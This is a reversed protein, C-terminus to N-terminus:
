SVWFWRQLLTLGRVGMVERAVVGPDLSLFVQAIFSNLKGQRTARVTRSKSLAPQQATGASMSAMDRELVGRGLAGEEGARRKATGMALAATSFRSAGKKTYVVGLILIHTITEM